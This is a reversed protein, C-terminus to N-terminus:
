KKSPSTSGLYLQSPDADQWRLQPTEPGHLIRNPSLFTSQLVASDFANEISVGEELIRPFLSNTFSNGSFYNSVANEERAVNAIGINRGYGMREAFGGAHCQSFYFLAFNVPLDQMIKEFEKESMEGDTTRVFCHGNHIHGHNTLYVLLRDNKNAREKISDVVYKLHWASARMIDKEGWEQMIFINERSTYRDILSNYVHAIGATHRGEVANFLIAYLSGDLNSVEGVSEKQQVKDYRTWFRGKERRM